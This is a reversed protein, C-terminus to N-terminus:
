WVLEAAHARHRNITVEYIRGDRVHVVRNAMRAIETNHTVMILTSGSEVIQEMVSLVEISTEYDLAATPEDALILMPKKVLARAISVRQQQGGSLQSPYNNKRESLGVMELAKTSDMPDDVLEGILDLNQVANLNPMLNYGQFIFGINNRRYETLQDQSADSFDEGNFVFSGETAKDMGGIINLLTSKGCGSEGLLVLFEGKYVDLNVGKLVKTVIEGNKFERCINRISIVTEGNEWPILKEANDDIAMAAMMVMIECMDVDESTFRRDESVTILQICGLKGNEGSFPVCIMSKIDIGEFDEATSEDRNASFDEIYETKQTEYVRGVCGEGETHMRNTMDIPSIWYYPHLTKTDSGDAYWIVAQEASCNATIIRLSEQFAEDLSEANTICKQIKGISLYYNRMTADM